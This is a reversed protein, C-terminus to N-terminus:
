LPSTLQLTLYLSVRDYDRVVMLYNMIRDAIQQFAPTVQVPGSAIPTNESHWERSASSRWGM